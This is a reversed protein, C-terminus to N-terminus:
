ASQRVEHRAFESSEAANLAKSSSMEMGSRTKLFRMSETAFTRRSRNSLKFVTHMLIKLDTGFRTTEIYKIDLKCKEPNLVTVVYREVLEEPVNVLLGEEHSFEITAAGTIGPRCLMCLNEHQPVKPRPGVFSMEGRVVNILQPLEDLKLRRLLAGFKTMRSDGHRTVTPGANLLERRNEMTRFKFIVFTQQHLGVREQRFLAPGQSTFRILWAILLMLPSFVILAIVSLVLDFCRKRKSMCWGSVYRPCFMPEAISEERLHGEFTESFKEESKSTRDHEARSKAM